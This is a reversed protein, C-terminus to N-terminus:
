GLDLRDFERADLSHAIAESGLVLSCNHSSRHRTIENSLKDPLSLPLVKVIQDNIHRRSRSVDIECQALLKTKSSSYNHCCRLLQGINVYNFSDLHKITELHWSDAYNLVHGVILAGTAIFLMPDKTGSECLM